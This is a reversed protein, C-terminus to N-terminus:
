NKFDDLNSIWKIAEDLSSCRKLSKKFFQKELTANLHNLQNYSVIATAVLFDYDKSLETWIQPDFSYSNYRNSIYGLKQDKKLYKNLRDIIEVAISLDVHVGENLESLVFQETIYFTGFKFEEKKFSLHKAYETNEFRM